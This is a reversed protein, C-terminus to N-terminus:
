RFFKRNKIVNYLRKFRAESGYLFHSIWLRIRDKFPVKCKKEDFLLIEYVKKMQIKEKSDSKIEQFSLIFMFNWEIKRFYLMNYFFVNSNKSSLVNLKQKTKALRIWIMMHHIRIWCFSISGTSRSGFGAFHYPDPPDPDSDPLIIHIRHIQIRIM